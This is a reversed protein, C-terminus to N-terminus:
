AQAQPLIVEFTAGENPTSCINFRGNLGEILHKVLALGFGYGVEGGTGDTSSANGGLIKDITAADLGVGNDTVRVELRNQVNEVILNLDVKIKGDRPTFKMANSILNGTIQLLKNKSFPTSATALNINISFDINKNKAQPAYFKELKDKFLM